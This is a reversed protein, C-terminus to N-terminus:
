VQAAGEGFQSQRHQLFADAFSPDRMQRQLDAALAEVVRRYEEALEGPERQAAGGAVALRQRWQLSSLLRPRLADFLDIASPSMLGVTISIAAQESRGMHWYGAPVYLWDGPELRCKMVPTVEREFRMDQPLTEVLPWPNVTNKRLSFEKSGQTQLVFVDEADYHWGFGFQEEPTCYVHADVAALFNHQFGRALEALGAHHREAHRIVLTYGEAHLRRVTPYDPLRGGEWLQGQRALMADVGHCALISEVTAWSGLGVLHRAGGQRALPQQLFFNEVFERASMDTLMQQLFPAQHVATNTNDAM